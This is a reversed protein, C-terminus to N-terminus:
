GGREGGAGRGQCVQKVYSTCHQVLLRLAEAMPGILMAENWAVSAGPEAKSGATPLPIYKRSSGMYFSGHLMVGKTCLPLDLPQNCCIVGEHRGPDTLCVAAAGHPLLAVDQVNNRMERAVNLISEDTSVCHCIVWVTYTPALDAGKEDSRTTAYESRIKFESLVHQPPKGRLAELDEVSGPLLELARAKDNQGIVSHAAVLRWRKDPEVVSVRVCAVSRSLLLSQYSKSGFDRVVTEVSHATVEAGFASAEARLPLRFVVPYKGRFQAFPALMNPFDQELKKTDFKRGTSRAALPVVFKRQPDFLHLADQAFLQPCDSLHYMSNMGVGFRGATSFDKRKGSRGLQQMRLIDEPRLPKDSCILFSPGQLSSARDDVLQDSAYTGLDLFFDLTTAGHDDTNQFFERFVDSQKDYENLLQKIRDVIDEQQGFHEETDVTECQQALKDRISV